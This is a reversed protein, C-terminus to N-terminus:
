PSTRCGLSQPKVSPFSNLTDVITWIPAQAPAQNTAAQAPSLAGHTGMTNSGRGEETRGGGKKTGWAKRRSHTSGRGEEKKRRVNERKRRRGGAEPRGATGRWTANLECSPQRVVDLRALADHDHRPHRLVCVTAQRAVAHHELRCGLLSQRHRGVLNRLAVAPAVFTLQRASIACRGRHWTNERGLPAFATDNRESVEKM